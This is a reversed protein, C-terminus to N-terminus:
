RPKKVFIGDAELIALRDDFSIPLLFSPEFGEAAFADVLTRWDPANQYIPRFTLESQLAVIHPLAEKAGKFVQLDFGQTDSKLYVRPSELGQQKLIEPLMESITRVPVKVKRAVKNSIDYKAPQNPDPTLFSSFVDLAMVNIEAEGKEAGIACRHIIWRPDKEAKRMLEEQREPVPEFSHIWGEYGVEQRLSEAYAGDNAGVDLVCDVGTLSFVQKLHENFPTEAPKYSEKRRLDYFRDLPVIIHGGKIALHQILRKLM